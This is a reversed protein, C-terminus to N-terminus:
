RQKKAGLQLKYWGVLASALLAFFLSLFITVAGAAWNLHKRLVTDLGYVVADGGNRDLHMVAVSMLIIGGFALAGSSIAFMNLMNRPLKDEANSAIDLEEAKLIMCMGSAAVGASVFAAAAWSFLVLDGRNASFVASWAISAGSKSWTLYWTRTNQRGFLSIGMLGAFTAIFEERAAKRLCFRPDPPYIPIQEMTM